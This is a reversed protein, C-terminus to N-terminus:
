QSNGFSYVIRLGVITANDINELASPSKVYQLDSQVTFNETLPFSYTLEYNTESNELLSDLSRAVPSIHAHAIAFGANHGKKGMFDYLVAGGGIYYDIQNIDKNANGVRVFIAKNQAFDYEASAYLGGNKQKKGGLLTDDTQSYQFAGFVYHFKDIKSDIEGLFLIGEDKSINWEIKNPRIASGPKADFAGIRWAFNENIQSNLVSALGIVPYISPGREGTQSFSSIIGHAPNIFLSSHNPADFIGNLDIQGIKLKNPSNIGGLGFEVWAENLFLGNYGTEINSIGQLDGVYNGSISQDNTYIASLNYNFNHSKSKAGDYSISFLMNVLNADGKLVGGSSNYFYDNTLSGEFTLPNDQALVQQSGFVMLGIAIFLNRKM